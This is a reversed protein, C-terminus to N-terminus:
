SSARQSRRDLERPNKQRDVATFGHEMRREAMPRAILLSLRPLLWIGWIALVTNALWVTFPPLRGVKARDVGYMMLPYYVVLIPM